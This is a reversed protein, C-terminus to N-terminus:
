KKPSATYKSQNIKSNPGQGQTKFEYTKVTSGAANHATIKLHYKTGPKLDLVIYHKSDLLDSPRVNNNVLTWDPDPNISSKEDKKDQM